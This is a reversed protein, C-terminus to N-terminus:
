KRGRAACSAHARPIKCSTHEARLERVHLGLRYLAVGAVRSGCKVGQVLTLVPVWGTRQLKVELAAM